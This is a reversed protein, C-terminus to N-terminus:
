LSNFAKALKMLSNKDKSERYLALWDQEHSTLIVEGDSPEREGTLLYIVDFGMNYFGLIAQLTPVREGNEYRSYTTQTIGAQSSAQAQTLGLRKREDVLRNGIIEMSFNNVFSM